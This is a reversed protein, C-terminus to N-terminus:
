RDRYRQELRRALADGYVRRVFAVARQETTAEPMARALDAMTAALVRNSLAFARALKERAPTERLRKLYHARAKPTTDQQLTPVPTTTNLVRIRGQKELVFLRRFDQPPHTLYVPRVLPNEAVNGAVQVVAFQAAVPSQGGLWAAAIVALACWVRRGGRITRGLAVESRSVGQNMAQM